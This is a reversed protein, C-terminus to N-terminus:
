QSNRVIDFVNAAEWAARTAAKSMDDYALQAGEVATQWSDKKTPEFIRQERWIKKRKAAM